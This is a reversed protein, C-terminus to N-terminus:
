YEPRLDACIVRRVGRQKLLESISEGQRRREECDCQNLVVRYERDGVNKRAGDESSLIVALDEETMLHRGDTGLLKEAQEKRFCVEELPQGLATLGAVAIVMDSETPIVPEWEAPVKCPLHKAGDAEVLVVDAAMQCDAMTIGIPFQLKESDVSVKEGAAVIPYDDCLRLLADADSAVPLDNPSLIHTTTTIIVSKGGDAYYRAMANILSTKGGAGVVSIVRGTELTDIDQLELAPLECLRVKERHCRMVQKGGVDGYLSMLESFYISDFIVPNGTKGGYSAALIIGKGAEWMDLMKRLSKETLYPQDSVALLCAESDPSVQRLKKLGIRVSGSIGKGPLPNRVTELGPFNERIDQFIVDYQSVVVVNELFGEKKLQRIKTLIHRYMPQQGIPHLLKNSGFRTSNGAALIIADM